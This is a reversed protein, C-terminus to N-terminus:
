LDTHVTTLSSCSATTVSHTHALPLLPPPPPTFLVNMREFLRVFRDLVSQSWEDIWCGVTHTCLESVSKAVCVCRGIVCVWVSYIYVCQIHVIWQYPLVISLCYHASSSRVQDCVCACVNTCVCVLLGGCTCVVVAWCICVVCVALSLRLSERWWHNGDSLKTSINTNSDSFSTM